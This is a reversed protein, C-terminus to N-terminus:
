RRSLTTLTALHDSEGARMTTASGVDFGRQFVHDIKVLPLAAPWSFGTTGINPRVLDLEAGLFRLAPDTTAANFDGLAIVQPSPDDRVTAALAALMDDRATQAGPRLSAAHILYVSTDGGPTQVTVHLARKWGLGLDLPEEAVLPNMSWIGVTGVGYSYPYKAAFVRNAAERSSDDLETLTILDPHHSLIDTASGEGGGSQARVNQSAITLPTATPAGPLAPLAPAIAVLWLIVAASAPIAARRFIVFVALAVAISVVGLLPLIVSVATGIPGPIWGCAIIVAIVVNVGVLRRATRRRAAQGTRRMTTKEDNRM